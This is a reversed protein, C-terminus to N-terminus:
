LGLEKAWKREEIANRAEAARRDAESAEVMPKYDGPSSEKIGMARRQRHRPTIVGASNMQSARNM